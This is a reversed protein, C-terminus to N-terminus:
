KLFTQVYRRLNKPNINRRLKTQYEQIVREKNESKELQKIFPSFLM